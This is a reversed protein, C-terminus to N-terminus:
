KLKEGQSFVYKPIQNESKYILESLIRNTPNKEKKFKNPNTDFVLFDAFKGVRINGIKDNMSISNAAGLTGLYFANEISILTNIDEINKNLMKLIKSNEITEKMENLISFSYGAGIDTGLGINLNKSLYKKTPMIGSQLFRNSNPCHAISCNHKLLTEIENNNLYISHALITNNQLLNHKEYIDTYTDFNPYLSKIYEIESQNESLHTQIFIGKENAIKGIELMLESSCSGAFRPTFIYNVNEKNSKHYKNILYESIKLNEAKSLFLGHKNPIDMMTNGMFIRINKDKAVEFSIEAAEKFTSTYVLATTTGYNILSNFFTESCLKAYDPNLLRMEEPFIYNDLWDMLELDGIGRAFTQPLHTHLDIFGPTILYESYDLYKFNDLNIDEVQRLIEQIIGNEDILIYIDSMFEVTNLDISHLINAKIIKLNKEQM